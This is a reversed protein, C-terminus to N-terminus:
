VHTGRRHLVVMRDTCEELTPGVVVIGHARIIAVNTGSRLIESVADATELTGYTLEKETIPLRLKEAVKQRTLAPDHVHIIANVDKRTSYLKWHLPIESSPKKLGEAKKLINGAFDFDHVMVLDDDSLDSLNSSTATIIFGGPARMSINGTTGPVIGREALERGTKKIARIIPKNATTFITKRAIAGEPISYKVGAYKEVMFAKGRVLNPM